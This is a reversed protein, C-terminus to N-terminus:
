DRQLIVELIMIFKLLNHTNYSLIIYRNSKRYISSTSMLISLIKNINKYVEIM